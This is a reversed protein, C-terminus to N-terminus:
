PLRRVIGHGDNPEYPPYPEGPTRTMGSEISHSFEDESAPLSIKLSGIEARLADNEQTLRETLIRPNHLPCVTVIPMGWSSTCKCILSESRTVVSAAASPIPDNTLSNYLEDILTNTDIVDSANTQRGSMASKSLRHKIDDLARLIEDNTM